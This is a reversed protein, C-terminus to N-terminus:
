LPLTDPTTQNTLNKKKELEFRDQKNLEVRKREFRELSERVRIATPSNATQVQSKCARCWSQLGDRTRTLNASFNFAPQTEGCRTCTKEEPVIVRAIGPPPRQAQYKSVCRKCWGSLGDWSASRKSFSEDQLTAACKSCRKM